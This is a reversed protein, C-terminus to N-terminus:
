TAAVVPRAGLQEVLLRRQVQGTSATRPIADVLALRRPHKPASLRAACHARLGDLDPPRAVDVPVVVACVVEGYREDPLGVVAVDAVGPCDSLAAEVEVPAVTEGGTRIVDRLRGVITLYGDDDTTAVDGTRYWGGVLAATTAAPDGFYGDFLLPSRVLIQGDDDLRVTAYITPPGCSGPKAAIDAHELMAVGGAETSGYIVRVTANPCAASISRLLEVPTASTGTDAFRLSSLDCAAGAPSARHDLIRQWVAPICNLRTARHREVADCIAPATPPVFVVRHRAQWQQLAITWAGMHFLPYPCVMAGRPELVAGPHSRLVNVRHSLVVGKPRGTSGSTFFVVHADRESLGSVVLEDDPHAHGIDALAAVAVGAGEAIRQARACRAADAVLLRPQAVELMAAVEDDALAPGIPAFVAGVKALGAFLPVLALDTDAWVVVRDGLAVRDTALHRAVANSRRDIDRFTLQEDGHVAAVREPCATGANRFVEGVLLDVM